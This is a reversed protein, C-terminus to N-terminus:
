VIIKQGSKAPGHKVFRKLLNNSVEQDVIEQSKITPPLNTFSMYTNFGGPTYVISFSSVGDNVSLNRTPFGNLTYSRIEKIVKKVRRTNIKFENIIEKIKNSNYYCSGGSGDIINNVSTTLDRFVIDTSVTNKILTGDIVNRPPCDGIIIEKREILSNGGIKTEDATLIVTYGAYEIGFDDHAQTPFYMDISSSVSGSNPDEENKVTARMVYKKCVSSRLGYYTNFGAETARINKNDNEVPHYIISDFVELEFIEPKDYMIIFAEGVKLADETKDKVESRFPEIYFPSYKQCLSEFKKFTESNETPEWSPQRDLLIFSNELTGADASSEENVGAVGNKNLYHSDNIMRNLFASQSRISEPILDMFPLVSPSGAVFYQPSGDPASISYRSGKSFFSIWYRGIFKSALNSEFEKFKDHWAQNYRIKVIKGKNNKAFERLKSDVTNFFLRKSGDDSGSSEGIDKVSIVEEIGLLPFKKGVLSTDVEAVGYFNYLLFLDRMVSSYNSMLCTSQLGQISNKDRYELSSSDKFTYYKSIYTSLGAAEGDIGSTANKWFLDKLTIPILSMRYMNDSSCDYSELRGEGGFYYINGLYSNDKITKSSSRDTLTCDTYFNQDNIEIGRKLDVFIVSDEDWYFSIGLPECWSRLVDRARGTHRAYYNDAIDPIFGKFKIGAGSLAQILESFTYIIDLIRTSRDQSCKILKNANEESLSDLDEQTSCPNCPDIFDPRVGDCPDLYEGVLVINNFTGYIEPVPITTKINNEIIVNRKKSVGHLGNLGVFIQDLIISTDWYEIKLTKGNSSSNSESYEVPYGSFKWFDGIEVKTVIDTQITPLSYDGEPNVLDIVLSSKEYMGGWSFQVGYVPYEIGSLKVRPIDTIM